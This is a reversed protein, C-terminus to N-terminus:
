VLDMFKEFNRVLSQKNMVHIDIGEVTTAIYEENPNKELLFKLKFNNSVDILIDRDLTTILEPLNNSKSTQYGNFVHHAISFVFDNRYVRYDFRYIESYQVYNEKIHKLYDFVVKTFNNKTFLITTAWFLEIGSDSIYRDHYRFRDEYYLDKVGNSILFDEDVNWYNLLNDTLVLYDCDLILTKDYPTLEWAKFRNQNHFPIKESLIGDGLIRENIKDEVIEDVIIKDFIKKALSYIKSEEMWKITSEDTILSVPMGLNKKALSASILSIKAYDVKRSNYAFIIIGNTM